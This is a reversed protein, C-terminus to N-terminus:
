APAPLLSMAPTNKLTREALIQRAIHDGLRNWRQAADSQPANPTPLMSALLVFAAVVGAKTKECAAHLLKVGLHRQGAHETKRAVGGLLRPRSTIAEHHKGPLVLRTYLSWWNYIIATLRAAAGSAEIERMSYGAWGWQNKLEDFPNEADGRDRYLRCLECPKLPVNSALVAYEYKLEDEKGELIETFGAYALLPADAKFAVKGARRKKRAADLQAPTRLRRQVIVRRAHEWSECKLMTERCEWGREDTEWPSEGSGPEARALKMVNKSLRVKFLYSQGLGDMRRMWNETGYACDGRVLRPRQAPPMGTISAVLRDLGHSAAHEDGARVDTDIVLRTGAMLFTHHVRSPRGPKAPNYSVVAGEQRRGYLPKVTVDIDLIWPAAAVFPGVSEALETTLWDDAKQPDLRKMARRVSDGSAVAGMGFLEMALTDNRLASLHAFRSGGNLTGLLLTGLVDRVDPANNSAYGFPATECLREWRGSALLFQAFGVLMGSPSACLEDDFGVRWRGGPTDVIHIDDIGPAPKSPEGQPHATQPTDEPRM